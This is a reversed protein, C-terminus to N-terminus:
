KPMGNTPVGTFWGFPPDDKSSKLVFEDQSPIEQFGIAFSERLYENMANM